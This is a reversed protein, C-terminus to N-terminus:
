PEAPSLSVVRRRLEGQEVSLEELTGTKEGDLIFRRVPGFFSFLEKRTCTPLYARLVRPDFFRFFFRKGTEGQVQLYFRFHERLGPLGADSHLFVGWSQGLAQHLLDQTSRARSSLSVLYPASRAFDQPLDGGYLCRAFLGPRRVFPYVRRDRAGDLLAFVDYVRREPDQRWLAELATRVELARTGDELERDEDSEDM